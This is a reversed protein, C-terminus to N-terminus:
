IASIMTPHLEIRKAIPRVKCWTKYRPLTDLEVLRIGDTEKNCAKELVSSTFQSHVASFPVLNSVFAVFVYVHDVFTDTAYKHVFLFRIDHPSVHISDHTEEHLERMCADQLTENHKKGGGPFTWERHKRDRVIVVKNDMVPICMVSTRIHKKMVPTPDM